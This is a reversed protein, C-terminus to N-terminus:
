VKTYGNSVQLRWPLNLYTTQVGTGDAYHGFDGRQIAEGKRKIDFFRHGEFALELRREKAIADKLIQGTENNSLFGSIRNARVADLAELAQADQNLMAYAEAKNLFVEAARLVKVDVVGSGTNVSSALYKVVHNYDNGVYPSTQIYASKRIDADTYMNFFDFAVVYESRIGDTLSQNYPVGVSQDTNTDFNKLEFIM